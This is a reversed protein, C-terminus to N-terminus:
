KDVSLTRLNFGEARSSGAPSSASRGTEVNTTPTSSARSNSTLPKQLLDYIGQTEIEMTRNTCSRTEEIRDGHENYRFGTREESLIGTRTTRLMLQGLQDYEYTTISFTQRVGFVKEFAAIAETQGGPPRSELQSQLDPFPFPEGFRMEESVLRNASDREFTIRRVVIQNVDRFVVEAPQDREDHVITM